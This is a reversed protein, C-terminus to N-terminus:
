FVKQKGCRKCKCPFMGHCEPGDAKWEHGYIAGCVFHKWWRFLWGNMSQRRKIVLCYSGRANFPCGNCQCTKCHEVAKITKEELEDM